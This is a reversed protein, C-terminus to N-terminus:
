CVVKQTSYLFSLFFPLSIFLFMTRIGFCDAMTIFLIHIFKSKNRQMKFINSQLNHAKAATLSHSSNTDTEQTNPTPVPLSDYLQSSNNFEATPINLIKSSDISTHTMATLEAM